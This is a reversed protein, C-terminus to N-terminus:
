GRKRRTRLPDPSGTPTKRDAQARIEHHAAHSTARFAEEYAALAGGLGGGATGRRRIRLALWTFAAMVVALGGALVLYPLLADM